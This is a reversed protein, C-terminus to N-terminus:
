KIFADLQTYFTEDEGVFRALIKGQPDVIIKTPFGAVSFKLIYDEKERSLVHHWNYSPNKAIFKKWNTGDDSEQAIGVIELKDKYKDLYEKMKPMGSICPGCWTGWFDVIVFKGRLSTLDFEKGDYTNMSKINPVTNGIATASMGDVRKAADVYYPVSVLKEKNMKGFLSIATPNDLQRRLMMDSLLWIATASATNNRVFDEKIKDVAKDLQEMKANLKKIELSDTVEKNAIKLSYNVSENTLPNIKKNLKALDNNAVSGSPYADVFDSIQGAVKIHTGPAAMIQLQSSKVPFYGGGKVQKTVKDDNVWINIYTLENIKGKYSFSGDPKVMISDTRRGNPATADRLSFMMKKSNLNKIKGSITFDNGSQAHAAIGTFILIAAIIKKM